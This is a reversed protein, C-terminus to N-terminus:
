PILFGYQKEEAKGKKISVYKFLFFVASERYYPHARKDLRFWQCLQLYVHSPGEYIKASGPIMWKQKKVKKEM